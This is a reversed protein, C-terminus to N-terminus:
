IASRITIPMNAKLAMLDLLVKFLDSHRYYAAIIMSFCGVDETASTLSHKYRQGSRELGKRFHIYVKWRELLEKSEADDGQWIIFTLLTLEDAQRRRTVSNVDELKRLRDPPELQIHLLLKLNIAALQQLFIRITWRPARFTPFDEKCVRFLFAITERVVEEETKDYERILHDFRNTDPAIGLLAYTHDKPDSAQRDGFHLMLTWLDHGHFWCSHKRAPGPMVELIAQTHQAAAIDTISPLLASIRGSISKQGSMIKVARASCVEQIVWVREFWSRHLLDELRRRQRATLGDLFPDHQQQQIM